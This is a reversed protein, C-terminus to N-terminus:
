KKGIDTIAIKKNNLHDENEISELLLQKSYKQM